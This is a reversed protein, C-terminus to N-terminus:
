QKKRLIELADNLNNKASLVSHFANVSLNEDSDKFLEQKISTLKLIMDKLSKAISELQKSEM